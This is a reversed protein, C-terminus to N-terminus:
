LLAIIKNEASQLDFYNDVIFGHINSFNAGSLVLIIGILALGYMFNSVLKAKTNERVAPASGLITRKFFRNIYYATLYYFLFTVFFNYVLGRNLRRASTFTPNSNIFKVKGKSRLNHLLDLEDGGQTLSVNYKEWVSKKFATNTATIYFPHGAILSYVYVGSFLFYTYAKGWLPGNYYRCPGCIAVVNSERQFRSDINTLWNPAFVTDGDTSIIIEGRAFSTGTQRAWCVGSKNETIITAGYHKAIKITNDTCNNDVVIVEYSKSTDQKKLSELTAGIFKDENYCPIVISFRIDDLRSV